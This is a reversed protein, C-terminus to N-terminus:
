KKVEGHAEAIAYFLGNAVLNWEDDPELPPHTVYAAFDDKKPEYNDRENSVVVFSDAWMAFFPAQYRYRNWFAVVSPQWGWGDKATGGPIYRGLEEARKGARKIATEVSIAVYMLTCVYGHVQAMILSRHDHTHVIINYREAMLRNFVMNGYGSASDICNVWGHAAGIGTKVGNMDKMNRLDAGLPTDDILADFDLEIYASLPIGSKYEVMKRALTSKGAGATGITLVMHPSKDEPVPKKGRILRTYLEDAREITEVESMPPCLTSVDPIWLHAAQKPKSAGGLVRARAGRPRSPLHLTRKSSAM